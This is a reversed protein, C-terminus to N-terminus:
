RVLIQLDSGLNINEKPTIVSYGSESIIQLTAMFSNASQVKVEPVGAELRIQSKSAITVSQYQGSTLVSVNIPDETPNALVLESQLQPVPLSLSDSFSEAPSLWAFDLVEGIRQSWIASAFESDSSLEVLYDGVGLDIPQEILQRAPVVLEFVDSNVGIGHLTVRVSIESDSPNLVRLRPEEFGNDFVELGPIFSSAALNTAAVMELGTAALGSVSRNQLSASIAPGNSFFEIAFIAENEALAALSIQVQEDAALTVLKQTEGAKSIVNLTVQAETSNPNALHLITQDGVSAMGSIFYGKAVPEACYIAALGAMRDRKVTQTQIASLANTTQDKSSLSLPVGTEIQDPMEGALVGDGIHSFVNASGVLELSGLETGDQGGLEAVPGPCFISLPLPTTSASLPATEPASAIPSPLLLLYGTTSLLAASGIAALSSVLKRM